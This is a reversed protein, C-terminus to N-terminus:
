MERQVVYDALAMLAQRARSDPFVTLAAKAENSFTQAARLAEEVSGYKIMLGMTYSLDNENVTDALLVERLREKEAASAKERLYILPLTVKGEQLDKGLEKGLQKQDASYDLTDDTIQFAFGLKKGYATLRGGPLPSSKRYDRRAPM